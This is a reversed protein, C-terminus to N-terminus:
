IGNLARGASQPTFGGEIRQLAALPGRLVLRRAQNGGVALCGRGLMPLAALPKVAGEGLDAVLEPEEQRGDALVTVTRGLLVRDVDLRRALECLEVVCEHLRVPAPGGIGPAVVHALDHRPQEEAHEGLIDPDERLVLEGARDDGM